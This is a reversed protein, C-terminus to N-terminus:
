RADGKPPQSIASSRTERLRRRQARKALRLQNNRHKHREPDAMQTLHWLRKGCRESCVMKRVQLPEADFIVGCEPNACERNKLTALYAERQQVNHAMRDLQEQRALPAYTGVPRIQVGRKRLWYRAAAPTVDVGAIDVLATLGHGQAYLEVWRDVVEPTIISNGGGRKGVPRM